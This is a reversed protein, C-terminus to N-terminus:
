FDYQWKEGTLHEAVIFLLWDAPGEHQPSSYLNTCVAVTVQEKPLWAICAQYGNVNGSHGIADQYKSLHFGYSYDIPYGTKRWRTQEARMAPSLLKGSALAQTFRDLDRATSLLAGAAGWKTPSDATVEHLVTGAGKWYIPGSETGYQYGRAATAPPLLDGSFRTDKLGLPRIVRKMVEAEARNGTVKEIVKALLLTNTNSYIFGKGPPTFHPPRRLSFAILEDSTWRRQPRAAFEAKMEKASIYNFLGSTHMGLMRLTIQDGNPIGPLYRSVPDDLRLKGEDVLQLVVTGIFPKAVSGVRFVTETTVPRKTKVEAEGFGKSVLVKGRQRVIVAAGPAGLYRRTEEIKQELTANKPFRPGSSHACGAMLAPLVLIALFRPSLM